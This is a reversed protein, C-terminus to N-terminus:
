HNRNNKVNQVKKSKVWKGDKKTKKKKKQQKRAVKSWSPRRQGAVLQTSGCFPPNKVIELANPQICHLSAIGERTKMKM